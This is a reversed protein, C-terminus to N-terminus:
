RGRGGRAVSGSEEPSQSMAGRYGADGADSGGRRSWEDVTAIVSGTVQELYELAIREDDPEITACADRLVTVQLGRERAGIATQAVCMETAAGALLIRTVGLEGLVRAIPTDDFASYAAKFIFRDGAAPAIRRLVDGGQAALAEAVHGPADGDWDGHADNVYIVPVRSRAYELARRIAPGRLRLSELLRVGDEHEFTTVVDLVILAEVVAASETM